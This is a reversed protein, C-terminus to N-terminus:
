CPDFRSPVIHLVVVAQASPDLINALDQRSNGFLRSHRPLLSELLSRHGLFCSLYWGVDRGGRTLQTANELIEELDRARLYLREEFLSM